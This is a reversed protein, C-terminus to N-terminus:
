LYGHLNSIFNVGVFTFVVAAFAVMSVYVARRGRVGWTRHLHLQAAYLLATAVASLVKADAYWHSDWATHAWAMGIFIGALLIPLGLAILLTNLRDLQEISPLRFALGGPHRSKLQSEQVLLALGVGFANGFFAYAAMLLVPHVNMWLSRLELALPGPPEGKLGAAAAGLAVWPLVFAGLVGLRHRREVVFFILATLLSFISLVGTFSEIPLLFRNEPFAWSLRLRLSFSALHLAVGIAALRLMWASLKEEKAFLYAVALACAAAYLSAAGRLLAIDDM